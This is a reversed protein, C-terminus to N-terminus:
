AEQEYPVNGTDLMATLHNSLESRIWAEIANTAEDIDACIIGHADLESAVDIIIQEM